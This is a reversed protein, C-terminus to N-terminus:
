FVFWPVIVWGWLKVLVFGLVLLWLLLFWNSFLCGAAVAIGVFNLDQFYECLGGSLHVDVGNKAARSLQQVAIVPVVTNCAMAIQLCLSGSHTHEVLSSTPELPLNCAADRGARRRVMSMRSM